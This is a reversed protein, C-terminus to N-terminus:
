QAKRASFRAAHEQWILPVIGTPGQRNKAVNIEAERPDAEDDYYGPRWLLMALDTDQELAGSERLDALMPRKNARKEVERNLQSLALVPCGLQKAMRKLRGSLSAVEQERSRGRSEMLQLYDVVVLHLQHQHKIQRCVAEMQADSEGIFIKFRHLANAASTIKTMDQDSLRHSVIRALDIDSLDALLRHCVQDVTMELSIVAVTRGAQAAHRVINLALATKGMSPRAGLIILEGPKFGGTVKDLMGIGTRIGDTRPRGMNRVVNHLINGVKQIETTSRAGIEAMAATASALIEETRVGQQTQASITSALKRIAELRATEHLGEVAADLTRQTIPAYQAIELLKSVRCKIGTTELRAAVTQPDTPKGGDTLDCIANALQRHNSFLEPTIRPAVALWLGPTELASALVTLENTTEM